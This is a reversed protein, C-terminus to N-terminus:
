LLQNANSQSQAGIRGSNEHKVSVRGSRAQTFTAQLGRSESTLQRVTEALDEQLLAIKGLEAEAAKVVQDANGECDASRHQHEPEAGCLPCVGDSLSSFM